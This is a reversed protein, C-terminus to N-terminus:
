QQSNGIISRSYQQVSQANEPRPTITSNVSKKEPQSLDNKKQLIKLGIGSLTWPKGIHEGYCGNNPFNHETGVFCSFINLRYM